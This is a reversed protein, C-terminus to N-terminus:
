GGWCRSPYLPRTCTFNLPTCRGWVTVWAPGWGLEESETKKRSQGEIGTGGPLLAGGACHSAGAHGNLLELKM